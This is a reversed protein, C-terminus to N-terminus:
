YKNAKYIYQCFKNIALWLTFINNHTCSRNLCKIKLTWSLQYHYLNNWQHYGDLNSILWQIKVQIEQNWLVTLSKTTCKMKNNIFKMENNIWKNEKNNTSNSNRHDLTNNHLIWMISIANLHQWDWPVCHMKMAWKKLIFYTWICNFM